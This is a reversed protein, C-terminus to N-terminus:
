SCFDSIKHHLLKPIRNPLTTAAVPGPYKYGVVIGSSSMIRDKEITERREREEEERRKKRKQAGSYFLLIRSFLLFFVSAAPPIM